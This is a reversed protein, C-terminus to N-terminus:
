VVQVERQEFLHDLWLSTLKEAASNQRLRQHLFHFDVCDLGQDQNFCSFVLSEKGTAPDVHRQLCQSCVEKLMCQMPSNISGIAVHEPRLVDALVTHRAQRVANMMLDSGICILRNVEQLRIPTEGLKGRTYWDMAQVINGVVSRDQPRHTAIPDGEDISWVVLDCADEIARRKFLDGARKYGAFYIVRNGRAKMAAAISFLVANGLGGGALLVTQNEPIETPTGTPGMLVIEEGPELIACLRSSGGMELVILSILGREPDTWAGTLALGEMTLRIGEVVEATGEYNQMRYFQGPRFNRAAFPARVIVEVIRDALRIADVVEARLGDELVEAFRVWANEREPQEALDQAAVESEFLGAIERYGHQASAMAKVVNGAFVPHADGYFSIFRGDKQYSTLFGVGGKPVPELRRKDGPAAALRYMAFCSNQEDLVFTGPHEKEYSINPNTGAAVMITRAPFEVMEGSDTWKGDVLKMRTCRLARVHEFEDLLAASPSMNEVFGIGEELSKIVEEHNLRYAPSDQLRKRYVITVGGWSRVLRAFDPPRGAAHAATREARVMRGHHLWTRVANTEEPDLRAWIAEEAIRRKLREFRELEKEVQTVYYAQLETATDIATLGGGIVVAPLEVQLNTLSNKRYAGQGQLGMLFDSAMRVGRSLNNEMRVITPRGAGATVAIHDFGLSWADDITLTGGFRVGDLLRFKKRRMLIVYNIDLFNKDWRVTIGYEAVGGFGLTPRESLPGVIDDIDRIPQPVRRKAGRLQPALPEVKLGEIGVVGFGENLLHQALTYGAPGMGVVLVNKGNYRLPYPRRAHLPNWRTLLSVIEFGYPLRLVETLIGTEIQPINVPDQKQFICSKMCDNCIRHGTGALMPNDIMVVALAGIPHGDRYLQIMESIKEDLPCGELLIGLPNRQLSGDKARLGTSCSDRGRDHCTLCYHSERLNERPTYRPDTLEFGDRYRRTEPPGVFLEPLDARPRIRPVLEAHDVKHPVGFCTFRARRRALAPHFALAQIWSEVAALRAAATARTSGDPADARGDTAALLAMTVEALEREPDGSLQGDPMVADVVARYASELEVADMQGVAEPSPPAKLVRREIFNRKWQFLVQDSRVRECLAAHEDAIHFMRAIFRGVYPAVRILLESEQLREFGCGKARRYREFDAALAADSEHLEALFAADLAELRRVRNLDAYKFGPVGLQLNWARTQERINEPLHKLAM